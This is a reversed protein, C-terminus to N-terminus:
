ENTEEQEKNEEEIVEIPVMKESFLFDNKEIREVMEINSSKQIQKPLEIQQKQLVKLTLDMVIKEHVIKFTREDSFEKIERENEEMVYDFDYFHVDKIECFPQEEYQVEESFHRDTTIKENQHLVSVPVEKMQRKGTVPKRSIFDLTTYCHFPIHAIAHNIKGCIATPTVKSMTAYEINKRIYGSVFLKHRHMEDKIVLGPLLHCQKLFVDKKTRKIEVAPETLEIKTEVCVQITPEALVVLAQITNEKFNPLNPCETEMQSRIVRCGEDRLEREM